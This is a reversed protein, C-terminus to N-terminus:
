RPQSEEAGLTIVRDRDARSVASKASTPHGCSVNEPWLLEQYSGVISRVTTVVIVGAILLAVVSDFV